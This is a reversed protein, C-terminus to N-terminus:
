LLISGDCDIAMMCTIRAYAKDNEKNCPVYKENFFIRMGRKETNLFIGALLELPGYSNANGHGKIEAFQKRGIKGGRM